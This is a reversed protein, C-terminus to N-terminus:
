ISALILILALDEDMILARLTAKYSLLAIEQSIDHLEMMKRMEEKSWEQAMSETIAEIAEKSVVKEEEKFAEVKKVVKEVTKVPLTEYIIVPYGAGALIECENSNDFFWCEEDFFREESDFFVPNIEM